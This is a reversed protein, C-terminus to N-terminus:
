SQIRSTTRSLDLDAELREVDEVLGMVRLRLLGDIQELRAADGPDDAGHALHLETQLKEESAFILPRTSTVRAAAAIPPVSAAACSVGAGRVPCAGGSM